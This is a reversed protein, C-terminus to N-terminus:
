SSANFPLAPLAPLTCFTSNTMGEPVFAVFSVCITRKTSNTPWPM